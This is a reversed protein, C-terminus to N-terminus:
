RKGDRRILGKDLSKALEQLYESSYHHIGPQLRQAGQVMAKAVTLADVPRYKGLFGGSLDSLSRGLWDAAREGWTSSSREDVILAPRFIHLGWWNMAELAQEVERKEQRYYLTSDSDAGVSSLYMYQAAGRASALRALMCAYTQEPQFREREYRIPRSTADWAYYVDHVHGEPIDRDLHEYSVRQVELKEHEFRLPEEMLVVVRRYAPHQLLQVLLKRGVLEGAGLLWATKHYTNIELTNAKDVAFTCFSKSITSYAQTEAPHLQWDGGRRLVGYIFSGM